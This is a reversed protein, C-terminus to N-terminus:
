DAARWSEPTWQEGWHRLRMCILAALLLARTKQPSEDDLLSALYLSSLLLSWAYERQDRYGTVESALRRLRGIVGLAKHLETGKPAGPWSAGRHAPKLPTAMARALKFFSFLDGEEWQVLRTAIDVELEAFDSLIHGPGTREFDIVWSYLGNTFLNDGHLDGHTIAQRAGPVLSHERHRLVWSVPNRLSIAQDAFSIKEGPIEMRTLHRELDLIRNYIEFLPPAEQALPEAYYRRWVTKFFSGLPRSVEAVDARKQYFASFPLFSEFPMDLMDYVAGGLEWFVVHRDLRSHFRGDLHGNVYDHYNKVEKEVEAVPALKVVVPELRDPRAKLVVSRRRSVPPPTVVEGPVTELAMVAAQPFLQCLVDDVMTPPLGAEDGFLARAVRPSDWRSSWHVQWDKVGACSSLSEREIAATLQAPDETKDIWDGELDRVKRTVNHQLYASYLIRRASRLSEILELGSCDDSYSDLLRLDIIAVHPRFDSALAKAQRVLNQGKGLVTQVRYQEGDLMQGIDLGVQPDDDVVLVRAKSGEM